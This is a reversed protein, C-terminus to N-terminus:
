SNEMVYQLADNTINWEDEQLIVINGGKSKVTLVENDRLVTDVVSKPNALLYDMSINKM